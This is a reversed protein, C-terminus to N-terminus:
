RSWRVLRELPLGWIVVAFIMCVGAGYGRVTAASELTLGPNMALTFSSLVDNVLLAAIMLVAAGALQNIFEATRHFTEVAGAWLDIGGGPRRGQAPSTPEPVAASQRPERKAQVKM